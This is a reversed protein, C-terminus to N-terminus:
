FHPANITKQHDDKAANLIQSPRLSVLLYHRAASGAICWSVRMILPPSPGGETSYTGPIEM